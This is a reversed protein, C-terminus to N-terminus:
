DGSENIVRGTYKSHVAALLVRKAEDSAHKFESIASRMFPVPPVHTPSTQRMRSRQKVKNLKGDKGYTVGVEGIRYFIQDRLAQPIKSGRYSMFLQRMHPKVATHFKGDRGFYTVYRQIHGYEVLGAHPAKRQNWSVQYVAKRNPSSKKKSYAQYVASKLVGRILVNRRQGLMTDLNRQATQYLVEAGAQAAPRISTEIRELLNDAFTTPDVGRMSITVGGTSKIYKKGRSV